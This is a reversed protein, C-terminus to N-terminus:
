SVGVATAQHFIMQWNREVKVWISSRKAHKSLEGSKNEMFTRYRVQIVGPSLLSFEFDQSVITHQSTDENTLSNLTNQFDYTKGSYGIELFESHLLETLRSVSKRSSYHHLEIELSKILDFLELENMSKM